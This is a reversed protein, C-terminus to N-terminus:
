IHMKIKSVAQYLETTMENSMHYTVFDNLIVHLCRAAKNVHIAQFITYVIVCLQILAILEYGITERMLKAAPYNILIPPFLTTTTDEDEDKKVPEETPPPFNSLATLYKFFTISGQSSKWSIFISIAMFLFSIYLSFIKNVSIIQRAVKKYLYKIDNFIGFSPRMKYYVLLNLYGILLELEAKVGWCILCYIPLALMCMIEFWYDVWTASELIHYYLSNDPSFVGYTQIDLYIQIAHLGFIIFYLSLLKVWYIKPPVMGNATVGGINGGASNAHNKWTSYFSREFASSITDFSDFLFKLNYGYFWFYVSPILIPLIRILYLISTIVVGSIEGLYLLDYLFYWLNYIFYAILGLTIISLIVSAILKLCNFPVFNSKLWPLTNAGVGGSSSSTPISFEDPNSKIHLLHIPFGLIIFPFTVICFNWNWETFSSFSQSLDSSLSNRNVSGTGPNSKEVDRPMQPYHKQNNNYYIDTIRAM